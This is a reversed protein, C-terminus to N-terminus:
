DVKDVITKFSSLDALDSTDVGTANKLKSKIAYNPLDIEVKIKSKSDTYPEPFCSMKYLLIKKILGVILHNIMVKANLMYNTLKKRLQKKLELSKKIQRKCNTKMFRELLKNEMLIVLLNYGRRLIKLEKIVFTEESYNPTYAKALINKYKSIKVHDGVESKPDGHNKEVNFVIYTSSRVDTAKM